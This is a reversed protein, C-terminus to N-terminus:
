PSVGEGSAVAQAGPPQAPPLQSPRHNMPHEFVREFFGNRLVGHPDLRRELAMFTELQPGFMAYLTEPRVHVNKTLHVRGGHALCLDSLVELEAVVAAVKDQSRVDEFSLTCAFGQLEYSASMTIRDEPMFLVDILTPILDRRRLRKAARELFRATGRVPLVFTQQIVPMPVGLARGIEKKKVNADMFFLFQRADNIFSVQERADREMFWYAIRTGIRHMWRVGALLGLLIRLWYDPRFVL